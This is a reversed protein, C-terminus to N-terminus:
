GLRDGIGVRAGNVFDWGSLSRKGAPQVQTLLLCGEGTQIVPGQHKIVAVITGPVPPTEMQPATWQAALGAFPEPCPQSPELGLPFSASIKLPKDRFQTQCQPYFGRIQNHLAWASREWHLAYDEKQILPAYTAQDAAQPTPHLDAWHLLTEGLLGAGQQALRDSLDQANDLLGIPTTSKLLMDGTDMGVDMLMTTIGTEEDGNYLSWQIPAAGRYRPLLSGHVNVCGLRPMALLEPSLLQGYAVVAFIDAQMARLQALTEPDKKLRQPQWLPLNQEVAREKVPSFSVASGRGRRKDPQTVVGLVEFDSGELLRDLSPVAFHPTGFFVIKM